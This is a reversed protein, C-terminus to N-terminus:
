KNVTRTTIIDVGSNLINKLVIEGSKVPSNLNIASILKLMKNIDKKSIPANTKLPIRNIFSSNIRCTSTVIRKPSTLENKAFLIGKPCKNNSILFEENKFEAQLYCGIPCSLCIITEM